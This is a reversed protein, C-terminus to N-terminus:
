FGIKKKFPINHVVYIFIINVKGESKTEEKPIEETKTQSKSQGRKKKAAPQKETEEEEEKVQVPTGNQPTLDNADNLSESHSLCLLFM